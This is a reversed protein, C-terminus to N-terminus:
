AKLKDKVECFEFSLTIFSCFIEFGINLQFTHFASGRLDLLYQLYVNSIVRIQSFTLVNFCNPFFKTM